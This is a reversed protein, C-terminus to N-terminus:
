FEPLLLGVFNVSKAPAILFGIGAEEHRGIGTILGSTIHRVGAATAALPMAM